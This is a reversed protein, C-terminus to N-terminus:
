HSAAAAERENPTGRGTEAFQQLSDPHTRGNRQPMLRFVLQTGVM